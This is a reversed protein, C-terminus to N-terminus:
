RKKWLMWLGITQCLINPLWMLFEPHIMAKQRLSEIFSLMIYYILPIIFCAFLAYYSEKRPRKIGLPMGLILFSFPGLAMAARKHLEVYFLATDIGRESYIQIRAFLQPIKMESLSRLLRRKNFNEKYKLPFTLTQGQIRRNKSVETPDNKDVTEITTNYLALDLRGFDKNIIIEGRHAHVRQQVMHSENLVYLHIDWISNEKKKGVYIIYGDFIEVFRGEDVLLLPNSAGEERVMLKARYKYEPALNFQLFFCIVCLVLSLFILPSIIQLLSIGASRLASIENDASMRTFVLVTAIFVGLPISFGLAYPMRYAIYKLLTILSVGRTLLEIVSSFQGILLVFTSVAIVLLVSFLINKTLYLNLKNMIVFLPHLQQDSTNSVVHETGIVGVSRNEM